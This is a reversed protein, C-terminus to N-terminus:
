ETMRLSLQAHLYQAEALFGPIAAVVELATGEDYAHSTKSRMERYQRWQSWEGLLLAQENASRILYNFDTGDFQAPNASTSVLYRKLMKHSLEYTFEFRQVLGDRIQTDSLDSQYRALGEELRALAQTLSTINIAM